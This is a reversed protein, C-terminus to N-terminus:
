ILVEVKEVGVCEFDKEKRNLFGYSIMHCLRHNKISCSGGFWPSVLTMDASFRVVSGGASYNFDGIKM